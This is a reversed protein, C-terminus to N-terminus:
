SAFPVLYNDRCALRDDPGVKSLESAQRQNSVMTAMEPPLSQQCGGRSHPRTTVVGRRDLPANRHTPRCTNPTPAITLITM